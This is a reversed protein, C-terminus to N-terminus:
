GKVEKIQDISPWQNNKLVIRCNGQGRSKRSGVARVLGMSLKLLVALKETSLVMEYDGPIPRYRSISGEFEANNAMKFMFLKGEDVTGTDPDISNFARRRTSDEKDKGNSIMNLTSFHFASPFRTSGFVACVPCIIKSREKLGCLSSDDGLSGDCCDINLFDCLSEFEWRILGKITNGPIVPNGDAGTQTLDDALISGSGTGILFDSDVILTYDLNQM